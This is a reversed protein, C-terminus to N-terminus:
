MTSSTLTKFRCRPTSQLITSHSSLQHQYATREILSQATTKFLSSIAESKGNGRNCSNLYTSVQTSKQGFYSRRFARHLFLYKYLLGVQWSHNRFPGRLFLVVNMGASWHLILAPLLCPVLYIDFLHLPVLLFPSFCHFSLFSSSATLKYHAWM